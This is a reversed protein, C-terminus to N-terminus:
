ATPPRSASSDCPSGWSITPYESSSPTPEADKVIGGM